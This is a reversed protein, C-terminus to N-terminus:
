ISLLVYPAKLIVLNVNGYVRHFEGAVNLPCFRFILEKNKPLEKPVSFWEIDWGLNHDLPENYSRSYITEEQDLVEVSISFEIPWSIKKGEESHFDIKKEFTISAKYTSREDFTVTHLTCEKSAVNIPEKVFLEQPSPSFWGAHSKASVLLIILFCKKLM